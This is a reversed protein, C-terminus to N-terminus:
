NNYKAQTHTVTYTQTHAHIHTGTVVGSPNEPTSTHACKTYLYNTDM